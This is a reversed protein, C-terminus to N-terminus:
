VGRIKKKDVINEIIFLSNVIVLGYLMLKIPFLHNNFYDFNIHYNTKYLLIMNEDCMTRYLIYTIAIFVLSSTLNYFLNNNIFNQKASLNIAYLLLLLIFPLLIKCFDLFDKNIYYYMNFM